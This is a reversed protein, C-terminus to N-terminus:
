ALVEELVKQYSDTNIAEYLKNIRENLESVTLKSSDLKKCLMRYIFYKAEFSELKLAANVTPNNKIDDSVDKCQSHRIIDGFIRAKKAEIFSEPTIEKVSISEVNSSDKAVELAYESAIMDITDEKSSTYIADEEHIVCEGEYALKYKILIEFFKM